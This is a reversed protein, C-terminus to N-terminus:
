AVTCGLRNELLSLIEGLLWETRGNILATGIADWNPPNGQQPWFEAWERRAASKVPLFDVGKWEKGDPRTSWDIGAAVLPEM